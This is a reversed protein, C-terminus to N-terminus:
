KVIHALGAKMTTGLMKMGPKHFAGPKGKVLVGANIPTFPVTYASSEYALAWKLSKINAYYVLTYSDPLGDGSAQSGSLSFWKGTGLTPVTGEYGGLVSEPYACYAQDYVHYGSAVGSTVTFDLGDCYATGSPTHFGYEYKKAQAASVTAIAAIAMTGLMLSKKM